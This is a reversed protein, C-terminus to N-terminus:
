MNGSNETYFFKKNLSLVTFTVLLGVAFGAFVQFPTHVGLSIRSLGVLVAIVFATVQKNMLPTGSLTSKTKMIWSFFLAVAMALAAHTSPFGYSDLQLYGGTPRPIAFIHKLVYVTGATCVLAICWILAERHWSRLYLFFIVFIFFSIFYPASTITHIFLATQISILTTM